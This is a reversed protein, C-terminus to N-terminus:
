AVPTFDPGESVVVVMSYELAANVEAGSVKIRPQGKFKVTMGDPYTVKFDLTSGGQALAHLTKFEATRYVFAFELNDVDQLGAIYARKSDALTTVDVKEPDSGFAPISKVGGAPTFVSGDASYELKAGLSLVGPEAFLQLNIENM